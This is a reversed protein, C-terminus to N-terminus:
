RGQQACLVFGPSAIAVRQARGDANWTHAGKLWSRVQNACEKATEGSMMQLPLGVMMAVPLTIRGYLLARMEPAGALRGLDLNEVPRGYDHANDVVFFSNEM